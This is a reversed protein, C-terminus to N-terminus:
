FFSQDLQRPFYLLALVAFLLSSGAQAFLLGCFPFLSVPLGM